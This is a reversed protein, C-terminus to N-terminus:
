LNESGNAFCVYLQSADVEVTELFDEVCSGPPQDALLPAQIGCFESTGCDSHTEAFTRV